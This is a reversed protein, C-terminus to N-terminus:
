SKKDNSETQTSTEKSEPLKNKFELYRLYRSANFSETSDEPAEEMVKSLWTKAESIRGLQQFCIGLKLRAQQAVFSQSNAIKQWYTVAKNCDTMASLDGARLSMIEFLLGSGSSAKITNELVAAAQDPKKYESYIDSLILAAEASANTGKNSKLFTELKAVVEGYDKDLDGTAKAPMEEKKDAPKKNKDAPADAKAFDAKKEFYVKTVAFLKDFSEKEASAQSNKMMVFASGAIVAVAFVGLIAKFNKEIITTAKGAFELIDFEKSEKSM